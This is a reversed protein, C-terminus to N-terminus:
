FNLAGELRGLCIHLSKINSNALSCILFPASCYVLLTLKVPESSLTVMCLIDKYTWEDVSSSTQICCLMM